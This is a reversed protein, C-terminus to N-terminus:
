HPDVPEWATLEGNAVMQELAVCIQRDENGLVDYLARLRRRQRSIELGLYAIGLSALVGTLVNGIHENM